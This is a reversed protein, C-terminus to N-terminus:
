WLGPLLRKTHSQYDLYPQGLVDVLTREEVSIRRLLAATPILATIILALWDGITLGSGILILLLGTYSPHRIWRYPGAEVVAQGAEVEVSTRFERGLTAIAWIRLVLGALMAAVALDAHRSGIQWASQDGLLAHVGNAALIAALFTLFNVRRTGRDQGTGGKGRVVDRVLLAVELAGWFWTLFIAFVNV